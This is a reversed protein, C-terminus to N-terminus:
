PHSQSFSEPRMSYFGANRDPRPVGHFDGQASTSQAALNMLLSQHLKQFLQLFADNLWGIAFDAFCILRLRSAGLSLLCAAAVLPRTQLAAPNAHWTPLGLIREQFEAPSPSIGRM